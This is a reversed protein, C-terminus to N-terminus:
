KYAKVNVEWQNNYNYEFRSFGAAKLFREISYCDLLARHRMPIPEQQGMLGWIVGGEQAEDDKWYQDSPYLLQPNSIYAKVHSEFDPFILHIYGEPKIVRAWEKLIKPIKQWNAHEICHSSFISDYTADALPLKEFADALINPSDETCINLTVIGPHDNGRSGIHLHM